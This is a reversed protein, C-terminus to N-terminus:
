VAAAVYEATLKDMLDLGSLISVQADAYNQRHLVPGLDRDNPPRLMDEMLCDADKFASRIDTLARRLNHPNISVIGPGTLPSPAAEKEARARLAEVELPTAEHWLRRQYVHLKAQENDWDDRLAADPALPDPAPAALIRALRAEEAALGAYIVIAIMRDRALRLNPYGYLPELADLRDWEEKSMNLPFTHRLGSPKRPPHAPKSPISSHTAVSAHDAPTETTLDTPEPRSKARSSRDTVM